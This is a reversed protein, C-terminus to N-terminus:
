EDLEGIINNDLFKLLPEMSEPVKFLLMYKKGIEIVTESYEIKIESGIENQPLYTIKGGTPIRFGDSNGKIEVSEGLKADELIGGDTLVEYIRSLNYEM